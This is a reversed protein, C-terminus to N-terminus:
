RDVSGIGMSRFRSAHLEHKVTVTSTPGHRHKAIIFDTENPRDLPDYYDPRFLLLVIDADQELAGSERLDSLLPRKDTRAEPGRNLQAAAYVVCGLEMAMIKLNRSIEAIQEQRQMRSNGSMLQVYDVTVVDLAGYRRRFKRARAIMETVTIGPQDVVGYRGETLAGRARAIKAWDDDTLDRELLRRGNVGSEACLIRMVWEKNSMELSFSLAAKGAHFANYRAAQLLAVSKGAGPRAAVLVLNGPRVPGLARDLDVLGLLVDRSTDDAAELDDLVEDAVDQVSRILSEDSVAAETLLACARDIVEDPAIDPAVVLRSINISAVHLKRRVAKEAITKAYSLAMASVPVMSVLQHLYAASGLRTFERDGILEPTISIPDIPLGEASRKLLVTFINIHAPSYFDEPHLLDVLEDMVAADLLVCGLLVQEAAEDYLPTPDAPAFDGSVM